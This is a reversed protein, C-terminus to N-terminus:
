VTVLVNQHINLLVCREIVLVRKYDQFILGKRQREIWQLADDPSDFAKDRSKEKGDVDDVTIFKDGNLGSQRRIHGILIDYDYVQFSSGDSKYSKFSIM